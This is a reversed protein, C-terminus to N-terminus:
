RRRRTRWYLGLLVGLAIVTAANLPTWPGRPKPEQQEPAAESADKPLAEQRPPVTESTANSASALEKEKGELGSEARMKDIEALSLTAPMIRADPPFSIQFLAPDATPDTEPPAIQVISDPRLKGDFYSDIHQEAPFWRGDNERFTVECAHELDGNDDFNDVHKVLFGHEPDVYVISLPTAKTRIEFLGSNQNFIELYRSPNLEFGDVQESGLGGFLLQGIERANGNESGEWALAQRGDQFTTLKRYQRGDFVSVTTKGSTSEGTACGHREVRSRPGSVVVTIEESLVPEEAKETHLYIQAQLRLAPFGVAEKMKRALSDLSLSSYSDADAPAEPPDCWGSSSALIAALLACLSRCVRKM